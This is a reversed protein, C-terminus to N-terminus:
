RRGKPCHRSWRCHPGPVLCLLAFIAGVGYVTKLLRDRLEILHSVFPAETGQLEDPPTSM